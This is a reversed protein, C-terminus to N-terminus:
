CSKQQVKSKITFSSFGTGDNSWTPRELKIYYKINASLSDRWYLLYKKNEWYTGTSGSSIYNGESDYIYGYIYSDGLSYFYYGDEETPMFSFVLYDGPNQISAEVKSDLTLESASDMDEASLVDEASACWTFACLLLLLLACLTLRSVGGQITRFGKSKLTSLVNQRTMRGEGSKQNMM